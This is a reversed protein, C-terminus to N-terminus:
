GRISISTGNGGYEKAMEKKKEEVIKEYQESNVKKGDSPIEIKEVKKLEIKSAKIEIKGDNISFMLIAGPLQGYGDPGVQTKIAPAFWAVIEEDKENITTAKTCEYGLYKIKESTLKWNYKPLKDEIVFAKGMFDEQSVSKRTKHNNYLKSEIDSEVLVIQISGDDSSFGNEEEEQEKADIYLSETNNFILEKNKSISSPLFGSFDIGEPMNDTEIELKETSVYSIIGSSQGVTLQITTFLAILVLLNKM